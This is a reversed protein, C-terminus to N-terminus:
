VSEVDNYLPSLHLGGNCKTTITDASMKVEEDNKYNNEKIIEDAMDIGDDSKM